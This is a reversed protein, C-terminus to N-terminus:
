SEFTMTARSIVASYEALTIGTANPYLKYRLLFNSFIEVDERKGLFLVRCKALRIAPLIVGNNRESRGIMLSM